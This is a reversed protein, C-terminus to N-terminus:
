AHGRTLCVGIASYPFHTRRGTTRLARHVVRSRLTRWRGFVLHGYSVSPMHKQDAAMLADWPLLRDEVIWRPESITCDHRAAFELYFDPLARWYDRPFDHIEWVTPTIIVCSGQAEVLTLANELGRIPDYVHEFLNTAIVTRWTRGLAAVASPDLVDLVFDVDRGPEGDAGEWAIGHRKCLARSNGLEINQVNRSGLDLVPGRIGGTHILHELYRFDTPVAM